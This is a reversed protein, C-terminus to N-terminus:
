AIVSVNVIVVDWIDDRGCQQWEYGDDTLVQREYRYDVVPATDLGAEARVKAKLDREIIGFLDVDHMSRAVIDASLRHEAQVLRGASTTM